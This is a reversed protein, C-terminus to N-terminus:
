REYGIDVSWLSRLLLRFYDIYICVSCAFVKVILGHISLHLNQIYLLNLKVVFASADHFIVITILLSISSFSVLFM